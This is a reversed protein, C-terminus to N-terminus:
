KLEDSTLTIAKVKGRMGFSNLLFQLAMPAEDVLLDKDAAKSRKIKDTTIESVAIPEPIKLGFRNAQEILHIKAANTPCLIPINNFESAYLLRMTKGNARPLNIIKM